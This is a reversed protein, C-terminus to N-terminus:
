ARPTELVTIYHNAERLVHDALLPVIISRIKCDIIGEAGAAKFDRLQRTHRLSEATVNGIERTQNQAQIAEATLEDFERGFARAKDILAEETPDLLGAIFKSHEAMIRNWFAERAILDERGHITEGQMLMYLRQMYFRAERLIHDILLPYTNTFTKCSLVDSLLKAKFDALASTQQYARTNISEVRQVTSAEFGRGDPSLRMERETLTTNIPVGTFFSTLREAELTYQTVVQRSELTERSVNDNAVEITESLLRDFGARMNAAETGLAKDKPTLALELFLAHEKMIRLFFLNLDISFTVFERQTIM